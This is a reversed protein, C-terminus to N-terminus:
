ILVQTWSAPEPGFRRRPCLEELDAESAVFSLGSGADSIFPHQVNRHQNRTSDVVMRQNALESAVGGGQGGLFRKPASKEWRAREAPVNLDRECPSM